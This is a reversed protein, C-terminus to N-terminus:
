VNTEGTDTPVNDVMANNIETLVTLAGLIQHRQFLVKFTGDITENVTDTTKLAAELEALKIQVFERITVVKNEMNM